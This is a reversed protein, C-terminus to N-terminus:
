ESEDFITIWGDSNVILLFEEVYFRVEGPVPMREPDRFLRDLSELDIRDYLVPVDVPDEELVNALAGIVATSPRSAFRERYIADEDDLPGTRRVSQVDTSDNGAVTM